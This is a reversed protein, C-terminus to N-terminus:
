RIVLGVQKALKPVPVETREAFMELCRIKEKLSANPNGTLWLKYANAVKEIASSDGNVKSPDSWGRLRGKKELGLKIM